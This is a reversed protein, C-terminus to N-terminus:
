LGSVPSCQARAVWILIIVTYLRLIEHVRFISSCRDCGLTPYSHRDAHNSICMRCIFSPLLNAPGDTAHAPFPIILRSQLPSPLFFPPLSPPPHIWGERREEKRETETKLLYAGLWERSGHYSTYRFCYGWGMFFTCSGCSCMKDPATSAPMKVSWEHVLRLKYNSLSTELPCQDVCPGNPNPVPPIPDVHDYLPSLFLSAM